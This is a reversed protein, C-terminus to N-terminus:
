WVQKQKTRPLQVSTIYIYVNIRKSIDKKGGLIGLRAVRSMKRVNITKKIRKHKIM